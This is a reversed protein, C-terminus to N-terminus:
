ETRQLFEGYGNDAFLPNPKLATPSLFLARYLSPVPRLQRSQDADVFWELGDHTAIPAFCALLALLDRKPALDLSRMARACVGLRPLLTRFGSDLHPMTDIDAETLPALDARFLACVAADTQEITWGTKRWLRIFRLLRAFEVATLRTSTDQPNAM